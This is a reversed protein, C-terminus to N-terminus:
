PRAYTPFVFVRQVSFSLVFLASEAIVKAGLPGIPTTAVIERILLYSLCFMVAVLICFRLLAAAGPREDRFVFRKNAVFNVSIACARGVALAGLPNGFVAIALAFALFDIAAALLSSAFFRIFVFYIRMSDLLPNFHSSRNGDIYMTDIPVQRIDVRRTIMEVLVSTEYEYREGPVDMLQPLLDRAIGRLGTQTDTIRKGFLFSVVWRTSLNGLSSRLPVGAAFQRAGLVFAGSELLAHGVRAIDRPAHQGDADATVVGELDPHACLCHNFATKLARGKGVNVAHRLLEVGTKDRLREFVPRTSADSGDDVVVISTFGLARLDDVLAVLRDEPNYAPIVVALRSLSSEAM